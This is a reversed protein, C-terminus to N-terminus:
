DNVKPRLFDAHRLQESVDDIANNLQTIKEALDQTAPRTYGGDPPRCMSARHGSTQM